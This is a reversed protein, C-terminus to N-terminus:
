LIQSKQMKTVFVIYTISISISSGTNKALFRCDVIRDIFVVIDYIVTQIIVCYYTISTIIEIYNVGCNCLKKHSEFHSCEGKLPYLGEIDKIDKGQLIYGNSNAHNKCIFLLNYFVSPIFMCSLALGATLYPRFASPRQPAFAV